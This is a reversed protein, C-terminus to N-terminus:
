VESSHCATLNRASGAFSFQGRDNMNKVGGVRMRNSSSRGFKCPVVDLPSSPKIYLIAKPPLARGRSGIKPIDLPVLRGLKLVYPQIGNLRDSGFKGCYCMSSAYAKLISWVWGLPAPEFEKSTAEFKARHDFKPPLLEQTRDM